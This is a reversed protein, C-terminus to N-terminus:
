KPLRTDAPPPASLIGDHGEPTESFLASMTFWFFPNVIEALRVPGPPLTEHNTASDLGGRSTRKSPRDAMM